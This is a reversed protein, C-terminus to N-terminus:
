EKTAQLAAAVRENIDMAAPHGAVVIKGQPDIIYTMPVGSVRFAQAPASHWGGDGAWVNCTNTWDRKNVHQRVIDLTDDISLPVIAVKEGWDSHAQRLKQLDAMPGQCPGCWTAWFDLVVVKGRLDSLKMKKEGNLTTFEIEPVASGPPLSRHEAVYNELEMAAAAKEDLVGAPVQYWSVKEGVKWDDTFRIVQRVALIYDGSLSTGTRSKRDTKVALKLKFQDGMLGELAGSARPRQLRDISAEQIEIQADKLDIGAAASQELMSRAIETQEQTMSAIEQDLERRSPEKAGTKQMMAWYLDSNVLAEKTYLNTDRERLFRVLTQGLRLLAPDDKDTIRSRMPTAAKDLIAMERLTKEDAVSAPFSEWQIGGACRWGQPFKNLRRLVIKYDGGAPNNTEAGPNLIIEVSQAFHLREGEAQLTPFHSSGLSRPNVVRAHLAGKSFDLHLADAKALFAKASAEAEERQSGADDAFGKLTESLAPLNASAIATWDEASATIERAFRATDRSRLLAIVSNSVAAFEDNAPRLMQRPASGPDAASLQPECLGLFLVAMGLSFPLALAPLFKQFNM